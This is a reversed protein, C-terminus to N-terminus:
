IKGKKSLMHITHQATGLAATLQETRTRETALEDLASELRANAAYSSEVLQDVRKQAAALLSKPEVMLAAIRESCQDRTADPALSLRRALDEITMMEVNAFNVKPAYGHFFEQSRREQEVAWEHPVIAYDRTGYHGGGLADISRLELSEIEM